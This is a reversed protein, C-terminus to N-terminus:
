NYLGSLLVPILVHWCQPFWLCVSFNPSPPSHENHHLTCCLSSNTRRLLLDRYLLLWDATMRPSSCTSTNACQDFCESKSWLFAKGRGHTNPNKVLGQRYQPGQCLRAQTLFVSLVEDAGVSVYQCSKGLSFRDKLHM